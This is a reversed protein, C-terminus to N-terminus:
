AHPRTASSKKPNTRQWDIQNKIESLIFSCELSLAIEEHSPELGGNNTKVFNRTAELAEHICRDFLGARPLVNRLSGGILNLTWFPGKSRSRTNDEAPPKKRLYRVQNGIENLIFYSKLSEAIEEQSPEKGTAHKVYKQVTLLASRIPDNVRVLQGL